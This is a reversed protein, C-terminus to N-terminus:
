GKSLKSCRELAECLGGCILKQGETNPHMGDPLLKVLEDDCSAAQRFITNVDVTDVNKEAMLEKAAAIFRDLMFNFGNSLYPEGGYYVKLKEVMVMPPPTFFIVDGGTKRVEDIFFTLNAIYEELPTRPTTKGKFVDIAADNCGFSFIMLDSKEALVDAEFRARALITTNGGVGKNVITHQPYKQTITESAVVVDKRPATISDGFFLIKSMTNLRKSIDFSLKSLIYKREIRKELEKQSFFCKKARCDDVGRWEM